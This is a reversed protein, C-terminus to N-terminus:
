FASFVTHGVKYFFYWCAGGGVVGLGSGQLLGFFIHHIICLKYVTIGARSIRWHYFLICYNTYDLCIHVNSHLPIDHM